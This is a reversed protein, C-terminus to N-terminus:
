ASIHRRRPRHLVTTITNECEKEPPCAEQGLWSRHRCHAGLLLTGFFENLLYPPATTPGRRTPLRSGVSVVTCPSFANFRHDM